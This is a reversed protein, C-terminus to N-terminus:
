NKSVFSMQVGKGKEMNFFEREFKVFNELLAIKGQVDSVLGL